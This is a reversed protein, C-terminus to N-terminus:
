EEEDIDGGMAYGARGGDAAYFNQNVYKKQPMFNLGAGANGLGSYYNKASQVAANPDLQVVDEVDDDGGGGMLFPAAVSAAGLGLMAAKGPNNKAYGLAKSGLNSFFSNNVNTGTGKAFLGGIGPLNGMSFGQMGARQLGFLNGGGMYYGGAALLAAKGLPSKAVKKVGRVAKKVFSGLGYNQRPASLGGYEYMQRAQQMNSIPM